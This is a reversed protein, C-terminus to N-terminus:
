HPPHESWANAALEDALPDRPHLVKVAVGFQIFPRWGPASPALAGGPTRDFDTCCGDPHQFNSTTGAPWVCNFAHLELTVSLNLVKGCYSTDWTGVPRYRGDNSLATAM